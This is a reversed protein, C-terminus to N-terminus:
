LSVFSVANTLGGVAKLGKNEYAGAAETDLGAVQADCAHSKAKWWWSSRKSESYSPFRSAVSDPHLVSAVPGVAQYVSDLCTWFNTLLRPLSGRGGGPRSVGGCSPGAQRHPGESGSAPRTTLSGSDGELM